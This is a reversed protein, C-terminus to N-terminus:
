RDWGERRGERGRMTGPAVEGGCAELGGETEEIADRGAGEMEASRARRGYRGDMEKRDREAWAGGDTRACVFACRKEASALAWM